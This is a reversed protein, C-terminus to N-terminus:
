FCCGSHAITRRPLIYKTVTFLNIRFIEWKATLVVGCFSVIKIDNDHTPGYNLM